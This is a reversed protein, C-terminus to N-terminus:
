PTFTCLIKQDLSAPAVSSPCTRPNQCLSKPACLRQYTCRKTTKAWSNNVSALKWLCWLQAEDLWPSSIPFGLWHKWWCYISFLFYNYSFSAALGLAPDSLFIIHCKQSKTGIQMHPKDGAISTSLQLYYSLFFPCKSFSLILLFLQHLLYFFLDWWLSEENKLTIKIEQGPILTKFAHEAILTPQLDGQRGRFRSSANGKPFFTPFFSCSFSWSQLDNCTVNVRRDKMWM